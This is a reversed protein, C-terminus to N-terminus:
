TPTSGKQEPSQPLSELAKLIGDAGPNVGIPSVYSYRIIGDKDVLFLARETVGDNKRYVGYKQAINGKPEFDSLL